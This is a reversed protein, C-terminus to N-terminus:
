LICFVILLWPLWITLSDKMSQVRRQKEEKGWAITSTLKPHIPTGRDM